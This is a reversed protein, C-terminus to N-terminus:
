RRRGLLPTHASSSMALVLLCLRWMWTMLAPELPKQVEAQPTSTNLTLVNRATM